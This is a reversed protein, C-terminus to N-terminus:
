DAGRVTERCEQGVRRARQVLWTRLAGQLGGDGPLPAAAMPAAPGIQEVAQRLAEASPAMMVMVKGQRSLAEALELQHDDIVEGFRKLRPVVILPKNMQLVNLISGAGGHSIVVRARSLWTQVQAETVFDFHQAFKPVYQTGGRQIIVSEEVLAAMEDAAQVLRDFGEPHQGVTVFIM